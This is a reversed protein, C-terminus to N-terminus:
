TPRVAAEILLNAVSAAEVGEFTDPPGVVDVRVDSVPSLFEIFNTGSRTSPSLMLLATQGNALRVLSRKAPCVHGEPCWDPSGLAELSAQAEERPGELQRQQVYFVGFIPHDYVYVLFRESPSTIDSRTVFINAPQGLTGPEIPAFSLEKAAKVL